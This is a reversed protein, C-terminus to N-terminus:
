KFELTVSYRQQFSVFIAILNKTTPNGKPGLMRTLSKEPIGVSDACVAYGGTQKILDRLTSKAEEFEAQFLQNAAVALSM